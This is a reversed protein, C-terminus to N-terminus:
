WSLVLNCSISLPSVRNVKEVLMLRNDDEAASAKAFARFDSFFMEM